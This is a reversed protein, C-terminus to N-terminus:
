SITALRGDDLRFRKDARQNLGPDHFTCILLRGPRHAFELLLEFCTAVTDPDLGSLPEDAVLIPPDWLLARVLALRHREGGSLTRIRRDFPLRELGVAAMLSHARGDDFRDKCGARQTFPFRLNDDISGPIM